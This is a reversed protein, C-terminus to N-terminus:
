PSLRKINWSYIGKQDKKYYRFRDHLRNERGQWFEFENPEIRYGGWFDPLSIKNKKFYSEMIEQKEELVGRSKIEESQTSVWASIQSKIPRTKFYKYSECKSLLTSKGLIIVQREIRYWPFLLSVYPNNSIELAKKSKYNTFFIFGREDFSKLLVTRSNPKNEENCTGLVMANPEIQNSKTAEKFWKSFQNFPNQELSVRRLCSQKYDLRMKSIDLNSSLEDM